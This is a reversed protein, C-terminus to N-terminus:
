NADQLAVDTDKAIILQARGSLVEVRGTIDVNKGVLSAAKPVLSKTVDTAPLKVIAPVNAESTYDKESNLYLATPSNGISGVTMRLTVTEGAHQAADQAFVLPYSSSDEAVGNGQKQAAALRAPDSWIGVKNSQAEKELNALYEKYIYDGTRGATALGRRIVEGNILGNESTFLYVLDRGTFSPDEKTCFGKQKLFAYLDKEQKTDTIKEPEVGLLKYTKGGATFSNVSTFEDIRVPQCPAIAISPSTTVVVSNKPALSSQGQDSSCGTFFLTLLPLVLLTRRVMLLPTFITGMNVHNEKETFYLHCLTEGNKFICSQNRNM